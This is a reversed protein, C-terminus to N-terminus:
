EWLGYAAEVVQNELGYADTRSLNNLDQQRVLHYYGASGDAYRALEGTTDRTIDLSSSVVGDAFFDFSFYRSEFGLLSYCRAQFSAGPGPFSGQVVLSREAPNEPVEILCRTRASDRARVPISAPFDEWYGAHSPDSLTCFPAFGCTIYDNLSIPDRVFAVSAGVSLWLVIDLTYVGTIVRGSHPNTVSGSLVFAGCSPYYGLEAPRFSLRDAALSVAASYRDHRPFQYSDRIPLSPTVHAHSVDWAIDGSPPLFRAGDTFDLITVTKNLDGPALQYNYCSGLHRQAPFAAQVSLVSSPMATRDSRIRWSLTRLDAGGTDLGYFYLIGLANNARCCAYGLSSASHYAGGFWACDEDFDSGAEASEVCLGSCYCDVVDRFRHGDDEALGEARLCPDPVAFRSLDLPSGDGGELSLYMVRDYYENRDEDYSSDGAEYLLMDSRPFTAIRPSPVTLTRAQAGRSMRVSAPPLGARELRLYVRNEDPIFWYRVGSEADYATQPEQRPDGVAWESGAALFRVPSAQTASPFSISGWEMLYRPAEWVYDTFSDPEYRVSVDLFDTLFGDWSRLRLRAAPMGTGTYLSSILLRAGQVRWNLGAAEAAVPDEAEIEWSLSEPTSVVPIETEAGGQWVVASSTGFRLTRGESLPGMEVKWSCQLTGEDTLSLLLEHSTGRRVNFDRCNDAGLCFRLCLPATAGETTWTGELELYSCLGAEAADLCAPVKKWPDTNAPLLVGRCNEPLFLVCPEDAQLASLDAATAADGPGVRLAKGSSAFPLLDCAAQRIRISQPRFDCLSLRKDWKLVVRAALRVPHLILPGSGASIRQEPEAGSMPLGTGSFTPDVDLRFAALDRLHGPLSVPGTNVLSYLRYDEGDLLDLTVSGDEAYASRELVSDRYAYVNINLVADEAAALSSRAVDVRCQVAIRRPESLHEPEPVSRVCSLLLVTVAVGATVNKLFANM